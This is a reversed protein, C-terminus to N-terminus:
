KLILFLGRICESYCFLFPTNVIAVKKLTKVGTLDKLCFNSFCGHLLMIFTLSSWSHKENKKFNYLHYYIACLMVYKERYQLNQLKSIFPFVLVVYSFRLSICSYTVEIELVLTFVSYLFDYQM